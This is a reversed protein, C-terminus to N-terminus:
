WSKSFTARFLLDNNYGDFFVKERYFNKIISVSLNGINYVPVSSNLSLVTNSNTGATREFSVALTNNWKEFLTLSGSLDYSYVNAPALSDTLTSNISTINVGASISFPIEFSITENLLYNYITYDGIGKKTSNSQRTMSFMTGLTYKKLPVNIGTTLSLASAFNDIKLSDIVADNKESYPTYNVILYPLKDLFMNLSFDYRNRNMSTKESRLRETFMKLNIKKDAFYQEIGINFGKLGNTINPAGLSSYGLGISKYGGKLKTNTEPINIISELNFMLDYHTGMKISLLSKAIGPIDDSVLDPARLDDTIVSGSFEGKIMVRDKFLKLKGDTGLIVNEMPSMSSTVKTMDNVDLSNINDKAKMFTIHFHSEEKGGIGLTGAFLKRAFNVTDIADLNKIGSVALYLLGNTYELDLGTVKTGNLIYKSYVPYTEGIGLTNFSSFFKLLGPINDGAKDKAKNIEEQSKDKLKQEIENKKDEIKQKVFEKLKAPDFLLAVSNINQKFEQQQTDFYFNFTFPLGYLSITPDFQVSLLNRPIQSGTKQRNTYKGSVNYSGSFQIPSKTQIESVDIIDTSQLNLKKIDSLGGYEGGGKKSKIKDSIQIFTTREDQFSKINKNNIEKSSLTRGNFLFERIESESLLSGNLYTKVRWAYRRGNEMPMAAVPYQFLGVVINKKSYIYPNATMAYYATQRELIEVINIEYSVNSGPQIPAPPMWNFIPLMTKIEDKDQPSILEGKITQLVEFDNCYESLVTNSSKSYVFICINYRGSPLSGTSKFNDDVESSYKKLDIPSISSASVSKPALTTQLVFTASTAEVLLSNSKKVTAKLYVEIPSGSNTLSVNWLDSANFRFPPPPRLVATVQSYSLNSFISLVFLIIVIKIIKM